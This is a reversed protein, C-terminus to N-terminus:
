ENKNQEILENLEIDIPMEDFDIGELLGYTSFYNGQRWHSGMHSLSYFLILYREYKSLQSSITEVFFDFEDEFDGKKLRQQDLFRMMQYLHSLYTIYVKEIGENDLGQDTNWSSIDSYIENLTNRIMPDNGANIRRNIIPRADDGRFFISFAVDLLANKDFEERGINQVIRIYSDLIRNHEKVAIVGELKSGPMLVGQDNVTSNIFKIGKLNERHMRLLEFFKSEFQEIYLADRQVKNAQYQIYFAAFTLIVGIFAVIPGVVGGLTDGILATKSGYRWYGETMTVYYPIVFFSLILALSIALSIWTWKFINKREIKAM